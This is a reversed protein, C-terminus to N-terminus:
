KCGNGRLIFTDGEKEVKMNMSLAIIEVIEAPNANDFEGTFRCTGAESKELIVRAGTISKLDALVQNLPTGVFIMLESNRWAATKTITETSKHLGGYIDVSCAMGKTLMIEKGSRSYKELVAVKGEEVEVVDVSDTARSRVLFSTGKVIVRSRYSLVTFPKSADKRVEFFAEGDLFVMRDDEGYTSSYRVTTTDHLYVKSSDPLYFEKMGNLARLDTFTPKTFLVNSMAWTILALVLVAAAARTIPAQLLQSWISIVKAQKEDITQAKVKNWASSIDFEPFAMKERSAIWSQEVEEFFVAHEPKETKWRFLEQEQQDSLEGHKYATIIEYWYESNPISTNKM